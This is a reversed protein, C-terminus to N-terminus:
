RKLKTVTQLLFNYHLEEVLLGWAAPIDKRCSIFDVKKPVDNIVM